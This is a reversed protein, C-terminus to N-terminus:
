AHETEGEVASPLGSLSGRSQCLSGGHALPEVAISVSAAEAATWDAGDGVGLGRMGPQGRLESMRESPEELESEREGKMGASAWCAPGAAGEAMSLREDDEMDVEDEEVEAKPENAEVVEDQDDCPAKSKRSGTSVLRGCSM